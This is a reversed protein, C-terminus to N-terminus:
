FRINLSKLVEAAKQKKGKYELEKIVIGKSDGCVVIVNNDMIRGVQGPTGYYTHKYLEAKWIILKEGNYMTYAGPYPHSQARIFNYVEQARLKWNIIGDEPLRKAGYSPEESLQPYSFIEGTLIKLYVQELVDLIKNEIKCIVDQIFDTDEVEVEGNAWINGEDMKDSFEFLSFGVKKEGNIMAWVLPAFGRYKPLLSNHIGIFGQPVNEIIEKEIIFYWGLVFCLDPELKQLVEGIKKPNELVYLAISEKKCFGTIEDFASRSDIRDDYTICGCLSEKDLEYIKKLVSYGLEKSGIFVVKKM